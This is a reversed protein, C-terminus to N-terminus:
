IRNVVVRHNASDTGQYSVTIKSGTQGGIEIPGGVAPPYANVKGYVVSSVTIATLTMMKPWKKSEGMELTVTSGVNIIMEQGSGNYVSTNAPIALSLSSM